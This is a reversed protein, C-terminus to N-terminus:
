RTDIIYKDTVVVDIPRDFYGLPLASEICKTYCVGVTLGSFDSIYRDYYGKGFGLRYGSRDFVLGPVLMLSAEGPRALSCRGTDPELLGYYGKELDGYSSIYYFKMTSTDADCRPVAVKKGRKIADNIIYSTDVEIDKSIFAFVVEANQYEKLDKLREFIGKDAESKLKAPM